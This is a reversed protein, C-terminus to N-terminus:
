AGGEVGLLAALQRLRAEYRKRQAEAPGGELLQLNRRARTLWRKAKELRSRERVIAISDMTPTRSGGLSLECCQVYAEIQLPDYALSRTYHKLAGDLRGLERCCRGMACLISSRLHRASPSLTQLLKYAQHFYWFARKWQGREMQWCGYGYQAEASQPLNKAMSRALAWRLRQHDTSQPRSVDLLFRLIRERDEEGIQDIRFPLEKVFAEFVRLTPASNRRDAALFRGLEFLRESDLAYGEDFAILDAELARSHMARAEHFRSLVAYIEGRLPKGKAEREAWKALSGLAQGVEAMLEERRELDVCAQARELAAKWHDIQQQSERDIPARKQRSRSAPRPRRLAPKAAGRLDEACRPCHVAGQAPARSVDCVAGCRACGELKRNQQAVTAELDEASVMEMDVLIRDLSTEKGESKLERRLEEVQRQQEATMLGGAILTECLENDSVLVAVPTADAGVAPQISSDVAINGKGREPKLAGRCSKCSYVRGPTFSAVNYRRRCSGCVLIRKSQGRLALHVDEPSLYGRAVLIQGLKEPPEATSLTQVCLCELVQLATARGHEVIWRGLAEGDSHDAPSIPDKSRRKRAVALIEFLQQPRALDLDLLAGAYGPVRGPQEPAPELRDLQAQTVVGLEVAIQGILM